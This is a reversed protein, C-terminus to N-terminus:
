SLTSLKKGKKLDLVEYDSLKSVNVNCKEAFTDYRMKIEVQLNTACTLLNMKATENM